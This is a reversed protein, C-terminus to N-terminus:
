DEKKELRMTFAFGTFIFSLLLFAYWQMNKDASTNKLAESTEKEASVSQSPKNPNQNGDDPNEPAVPKGPTPDEPTTPNSPKNTDPNEPQGPQEPKSDTGTKVLADQAEKLNNLATNVANQSVNEDNFVTNAEKLALTFVVWSESTYDDKNLTIALDIQKKLADKNVEVPTETDKKILVNYADTLKQVAQDIIGQEDASDLVNKADEIAKAFKAYSEETYEEKNVKEAKTIAEQLVAKNLEPKTEVPHKKVEEIADTLSATAQNVAEQSVDEKKAVEKAQKLVETFTNWHEEIYDEKKLAEANRIAQELAAKDVEESTVPELNEIAATLDNLAQVVQSQLANENASLTQAAKLAEAFVSWGSVYDAEKYDKVEEIKQNLAAKDAKKANLNSLADTVKETVKVIESKLASDSLNEAETLAEELLTWSDKDYDTKVLGDAGKIAEALAAKASDTNVPQLKGMAETLDATAQSVEEESADKNNAVTEARRLVAEFTDWNEYDGDILANAKAIEANLETKDAILKLEKYAKSLENIADDVQQVTADSAINKAAELADELNKVSGPTYMEANKLASEGFAIAVNLAAFNPQDVEVPVLCGVADKLMEKAKNVDELTADENAYKTAYAIVNKLNNRSAETYAEDNVYDKATDLAEQLATSGNDFKIVNGQEDLVLNKQLFEQANSDKDTFTGGAIEINAKVTSDKFKDDVVFAGDFIGGEIKLRANTKIEAATTTSDGGYEIDGYIHSNGSVKVTVDQYGHSPWHYLDFAFNGKGEKAIINSNDIFVYGNNNSLTYAGKTLDLNRGDLTMTNLTIKGYNQVLMKAKADVGSTITGNRFSVTANPMIQFGLTQTGTSGVLHGNVTYSYGAFDIAINQGSPFIIGDGTANGQLTIYVPKKSTNYKEVIDITKALNQNCTEKKGQMRLCVNNVNAKSEVQKDQAFTSVPFTLMVMAASLLSATM